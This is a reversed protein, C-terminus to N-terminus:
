ADNVTKGGIGRIQIAAHMQTEVETVTSSWRWAPVHKEYLEDIEAASRSFM